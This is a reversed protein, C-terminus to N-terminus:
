VSWCSSNGSFYVWDLSNWDSVEFDINELSGSSSGDLLKRNVQLVAHSVSFIESLNADVEHPFFSALWFRLAERLSKSLNWAITSLFLSLKWILCGLPTLFPFFYYDFYSYHIQTTKKQHPTFNAGIFDRNLNKEFLPWFVPNEILENHQKGYSFTCNEMGLLYTHHLQTCWM